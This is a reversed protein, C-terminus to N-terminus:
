DRVRLVVPFNNFSRVDMTYDGAGLTVEADMTEGPGMYVRAPTPKVRAAPTTMGDKAVVRWSLPTSDSHAHLTGSVDDEVTINIFRLRHTKGARLRITDAPEGGNLAVIASDDKGRQSFLLVHDTEPNWRAGPELVVIAGYLGSALQRIEDAHAHYMFTGSRVPTFRAVFSDSPAVMPALAGTSGSWGGVGDYFSELEIGHWHVTTPARLENIVSIEVPEGRTLTLLPGPVTRSADDGPTREDLAFAYASSKDHYFQKVERAHLRIRRAAPPADAVQATATDRVSIGLILGAMTKAVHDSADHTAFSDPPAIGALHYLQQGSMHSGKHCHFLWNGPRAPAWSILASQLPRVNETVVFPRDNPAYLTDRALDGRADVRFYFGHLHMPHDSGTANLVRWHVSDGVALDFHESHPWMKGNMALMFPGSDDGTKQWGHIVFIRENARPADTTDIMLAGVLGSLETGVILKHGSLKVAHYVYAGARDAVFSLERTAGPLIPQTDRPACTSSLPTCLVLTDTLTNRLSMRVLTGLRARVLPAPVVPQQGEVALTGITISPGSDSAPFWKARQAILRLTLTDGVREGAAVRNDNARAIAVESRPAACAALLVVTVVRAARCLPTRM